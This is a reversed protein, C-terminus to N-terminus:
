SLAVWGSRIDPRQSADLFPSWTDIFDPEVTILLM